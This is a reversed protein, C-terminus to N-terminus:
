HAAHHVYWYALLAADARNHHKSPTVFLWKANPFTNAAMECIKALAGPRDKGPVRLQGKWAAPAVFYMPIGLAACVGEARYMSGVFAAGTVLNEGPRITVHECICAVNPHLEKWVRLTDALKSALKTECFALEHTEGAPVALCATLPTGPDIAIIAPM